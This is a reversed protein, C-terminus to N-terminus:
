QRAQGKGNPSANIGKREVSNSASGIALIEQYEEQILFQSQYTEGTQREYTRIFAQLHNISGKLLNEYVEVVARSTTKELYEQLDLIDIEEIAAGVLMADALSLSGKEILEDHLAQLDQNTFVGRGNEQVPDELGFLDILTLVAEMHTDESNSINTFINMNWVEALQLYVDRALKEEERMFKIGEMEAASLDLESLSSITEQHAQKGPGVGADGNQNTVVFDNSEATLRKSIDGGLMPEAQTKTDPAVAACAGLLIVFVSLLILSKKM